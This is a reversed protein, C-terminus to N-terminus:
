WMAWSATVLATRIPCEKAEFEKQLGVLGALFNKFPGGGLPEGASAAETSRFADLGDRQFVQDAEDSFLVSDGDFAIRLEDGPRQGTGGVSASGLLTAAAVGHDLAQTVDDAHTSLFLDCNFAQIYRYPQQGGCFAARTIDLGHASISNFIRLGTDASNRSLLIVEVRPIGLLKNINLLKEVFHFAEGPALPQDEREIQYRRYAALGDSEYVANSDDLDFLARSSIAVVLREQELRKEEDPANPTAEGHPPLTM